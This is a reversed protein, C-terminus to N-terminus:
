LSPWFDHLTKMRKPSPSADPSTMKQKPSPSAAVVQDGKALSAPAVITAASSEAAFSANPPFYHYLTRGRKSPCTSVVTPDDSAPPAHAVIEMTAPTVAAAISDVGAPSAYAVIEAAAPAASASGAQSDCDDLTQQRKSALVDVILPDGNPALAEVESAATSASATTASPSGSSSLYSSMAEVLYETSIPNDQVAM